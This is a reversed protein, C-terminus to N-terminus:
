FQIQRDLLEVPLTNLVRGEPDTNLDLVQMRASSTNSDLTLKNTRAKAILFLAFATKKCTARM